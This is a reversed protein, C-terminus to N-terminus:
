NIFFSCNTIVFVKGIILLRCCIRVYTCIYTRIYHTYELVIGM